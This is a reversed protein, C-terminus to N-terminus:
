KLYNLKAYTFQEVSGMSVVRDPAVLPLLLTSRIVWLELKVPAEADSQKMNSTQPIKGGRCIHLQYIRCGWGVPVWFSFQTNPFLQSAYPNRHLRRSPSSIHQANIQHVLEDASSYNTMYYSTRDTSYKGFFLTCRCSPITHQFSLIYLLWRRTM